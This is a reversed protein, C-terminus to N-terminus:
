GVIDISHKITALNFSSTGSINKIMPFIIDGDAWEYMSYTTIVMAGTMTGTIVRYMGSNNLVVTDGLGSDMGLAVNPAQGSPFYGYVCIRDIIKITGGTNNAFTGDNNDTIGDPLDGSTVSTMSVRYYTNIVPTSVGQYSGTWVGSTMASFIHVLSDLLLVLDGNSDIYGKGFGDSCKVEVISGIWQSSSAFRAAAFYGAAVVDALTDETSYIFKDFINSSQFYVQQIKQQNFSM